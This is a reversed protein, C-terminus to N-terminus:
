VYTVVREDEIMADRWETGESRVIVKVIIVAPVVVQRRQATVVVPYCMVWEWCALVCPTRSTLVCIARASERASLAPNALFVSRRSIKMPPPSRPDYRSLLM